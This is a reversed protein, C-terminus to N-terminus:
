GWGEEPKIATLLVEEGCTVGFRTLTYEWMWFAGSALLDTATVEEVRIGPLAGRRELLASAQHVFHSSSSPTEVREVRYGARRVLETLTSTNFLHIHRPPDLHLWNRGFHRHGRSSTNPTALSLVGGPRLAHGCDRLTTLPDLLHEIVHSLTIVDFGDPNAVLASDLDPYVVDAELTKRAVEGAQADAEVGAVTWGLSRMHELFAGDGCGFDLLKGRERGSLGMVARYGMERLPGFHSLLVGLRREWPDLAIDDYGFRAVPIGRLISHVFVSEERPPAHTYYNTYLQPFDKETPKPNLWVLECRPCALQTWTGPADFHRDQLDPVSLEGTTGCLMCEPRAVAYLAAEADRNDAHPQSAPETM